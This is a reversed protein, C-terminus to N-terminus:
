TEEHKNCYDATNCCCFRMPIGTINKEICENKSHQCIMTNCGAKQLTSFSAVEATANYCFDTEKGCEKTTNGISS